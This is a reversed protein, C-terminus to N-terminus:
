IDVVGMRKLADKAPELGQLAAKKYWDIAATRDQSGGWGYEYAHGVKYQSQAFGATAASLHYAFAKRLDAPQSISCCVAM